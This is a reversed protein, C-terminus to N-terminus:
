PWVDPPPYPRQRPTSTSAVMEGPKSSMKTATSCQAVPSPLIQEVDDRVSLGHCLVSPNTAATDPALSVLPLNCPECTANEHMSTPQIQIWSCVRCQWKRPVSVRHPTELLQVVANVASPDTLKAEEAADRALDGSRALRVPYSLHNSRSNTAVHITLISRGQLITIYRYWNAINCM